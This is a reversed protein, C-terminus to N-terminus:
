DVSDNDPAPSEIKALHPLNVLEDEMLSQWDKQAIANPETQQIQSWLSQVGEYWYGNELWIDAKQADSAANLQQTLVTSPAEYEVWGEAFINGAPLDPDCVLHVQWKYAREPELEPVAEAALDYNVIQNTPLNEFVKRHVIEMGLDSPAFLRVEVSPFSHEPMFWILNPKPTATFGSSLPVITTLPKSDRSVGCGGRSALGIRQNSRGIGPKPKFGALATTAHSVVGACLFLAFVRKLSTPVSISDISLM